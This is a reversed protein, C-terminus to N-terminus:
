FAQDDGDLCAAAVDTLNQPQLDPSWALLEQIFARNLALIAKHKRCAFLPPHDILHGAVEYSSM